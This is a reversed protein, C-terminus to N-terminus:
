KNVKKTKIKKFRKMQEKIMKEQHLAMLKSNHFTIRDVIFIIVFVLIFLIIQFFNKKIFDFISKINYKPVDEAENIKIENYVEM